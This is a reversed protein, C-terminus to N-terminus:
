SLSYVGFIGSHERGKFNLGLDELAGNLGMPKRDYFQKYTVKLDIWLNFFALKKIHKRLCEYHLCM